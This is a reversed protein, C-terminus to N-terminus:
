YREFAEIQKALCRWNAHFYYISSKAVYVIAFQFVMALMALEIPAFVM